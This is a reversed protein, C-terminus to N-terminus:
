PLQIPGGQSMCRPFPHTHPVDGKAFGKPVWQLVYYWLTKNAIRAGHWNARAYAGQQGACVSVKRRRENETM